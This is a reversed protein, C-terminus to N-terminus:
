TWYLYRIRFMCIEKWLKSEVIKMAAKHVRLLHWADHGSSDNEIESIIVTIGNMGANCDM